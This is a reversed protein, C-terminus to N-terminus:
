KEPISKEICDLCNMFVAKNEYNGKGSHQFCSASSCFSQMRLCVNMRPALYLLFGM